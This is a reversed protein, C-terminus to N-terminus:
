KLNELELTLKDIQQQLDLTIPAGLEPVPVDDNSDYLPTVTYWLRWPCQHIVNAHSNQFLEQPSMNVTQDLWELEGTTRITPPGSFQWLTRVSPGGREGIYWNSELWVCERLKTSASDFTTSFETPGRRANSIEMPSMVPDVYGEVWSYVYAVSSLLLLSLAGAFAVNNIWRVFKRTM